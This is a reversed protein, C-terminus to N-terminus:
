ARRSARFLGRRDAVDVLGESALALFAAVSLLVALVHGAPGASEDGGERSSSSQLTGGLRDLGAAAESHVYLGGGREAITRLSPEDLRSVVPVGNPGLVSGGRQFANGPLRVESGESSGVGVAHVRVGRRAVEMVARELEPGPRGSEGDSVVVVVREAGNGDPVATMSAAERIGNALSSGPDQASATTAEVGRLLFRVVRLDATPPALAYGKGAFLLLGVRSGEAEEVLRDVVQVARSLRTPAVDDAQMSASVDIAIVVTKRPGVPEAPARPATAPPVDAPPEPAPRMPGAAALAVALTAFGLAAVRGTRHRYLDSDSTRRAGAPGGLFRALRRRRRGHRLLGLVVIAAVVIGAILFGPHTLTM